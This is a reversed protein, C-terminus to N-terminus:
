DNCLERQVVQRGCHGWPLAEISLGEGRRHAHLASFPGDIPGCVLTRAVVNAGFADMGLAVVRYWPAALAFVLVFAAARLPWRSTVRARLLRLFAFAVLLLAPLYVLVGAGIFSYGVLVYLADSAPPGFCSALLSM